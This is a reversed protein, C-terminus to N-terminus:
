RRELVIRYNPDIFVRNIEDVIQQPAWDGPFLLHWAVHKKHPIRSINGYARTGGQAKPKRHHDTLKRM